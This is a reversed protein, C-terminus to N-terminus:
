RGHFRLKRGRAALYNAVVLDPRHDGNVDGVAVSLQVGSAYTVAQQFTGDGNGLLVSLAPSTCCLGDAGSWNGVALDPKGDGNFDGVVVSRAFVGGSNYTAAAQFTGDGNGLLVGVSGSGCDSSSACWNAVIIDPKGDGNVDAVVVSDPSAGGSAYAVAPQFTGDGNGLLVAVTGDAGWVNLSCNSGSACWNAVVVDPKGDGNLDAM